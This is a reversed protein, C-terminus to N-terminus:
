TDLDNYHVLTDNIHFWQTNDERFWIFSTYHQGQAHYNVFGILKYM